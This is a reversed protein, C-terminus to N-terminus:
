IDFSARRQVKALDCGEKKQVLPIQAPNGARLWRDLNLGLYSADLYINIDDTIQLSSISEHDFKENKYILM